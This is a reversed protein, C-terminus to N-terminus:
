LNEIRKELEKIRKAMRDLSMFRAVNRRWLSNEKAPFGSSYIGPTLISNSVASTGTIHVNDVISIHGAISVAGGVLCNRGISTSGSIGSCGAIATNDGILVNHGIQVLNDIIVNNGIVTNDIMGRDISTNSGIEVRDGILVGGLHLMKVWGIKADLAFGFGDAGIVCGSHLICDAGIQVGNYITVNAHCLSNVGLVCDNGIVVGAQLIVGDAIFTNDGIVCNPGISINNGLRVNNGIVASAHVGLTISTQVHCLHLLKALALRPNNTVLAVTPSDKVDEVSMLVASAKTTALNKKYIPNSLFAVSGPLAKDLSALNTIQIASIAAPDGILEAAISTALEPLTCPQKLKLEM